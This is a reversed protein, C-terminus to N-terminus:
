ICNIPPLVHMSSIVQFNILYEELCSIYQKVLFRMNVAVFGMPVVFKQAAYFNMQVEFERRFVMLPDFYYSAKM